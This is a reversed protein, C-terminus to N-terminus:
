QYKKALKQLEIEKELVDFEKDRHVLIANYLRATAAIWADALSLSYRAKYEAALRLVPDENEIWEIPTHMLNEYCENAQAASLRQLHVYLYEMRSIFSGLVRLRGSGAESLLTEVEKYGAEEFALTLLASTDLM